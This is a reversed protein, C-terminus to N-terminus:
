LHIKLIKDHIETKGYKEIFSPQFGPGDFSHVSVIRNQISKKSMIAAFAALNGGKSHGGLYLKSGSCGSVQKLYEVSRLQSPIPTFVAMNLSEKWGVITDDTGSFAVYTSDDYFDFCMACFQKEEKTDIENVYGRVLV